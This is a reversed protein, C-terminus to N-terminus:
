ARLMSAVASVDIIIVDEESRTIAPPAESSAIAMPACLAVVLAGVVGSPAASPANAYALTASPGAARSKKPVHLSNAGPAVRKRTTFQRVEDEFIGLPLRMGKNVSGGVPLNVSTSKSASDPLVAPSIGGFGPGRWQQPNITSPLTSQGNAEVADACEARSEM